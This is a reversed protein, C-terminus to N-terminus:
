HAFPRVVDGRCWRRGSGGISPTVGRVTIGL